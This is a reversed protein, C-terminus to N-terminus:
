HNSKWIPKELGTREESASSIIKLLCADSSSASRPGPTDKTFYPNTGDQCTQFGLKM